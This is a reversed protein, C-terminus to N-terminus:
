ATNKNYNIKLIKKNAFEKVEDLTSVVNKIPLSDLVISRYKKTSSSNIRPDLITLIGTDTETRILRGAGQRLKIIMEPILLNMVPNTIVTSKYQIIPDPVPFPLRVIIVSSLDSGPTNFGEWFVGTGLLIGKSNIFRSKVENQSSGPSQKLISWPLKQMQFYQYIKNMDNKATFLVLTRGNTINALDCIKEATQKLFLDPDKEYDIMNDPIYLCANENYPFPSPKPVGFDGIFGVSKSVYAYQDELREAKQCLTASTLIIPALSKEFLLRHLREDINKPAYCIDTLKKTINNCIGWFIFPSINQKGLHKYAEKLTNLQNGLEEKSHSSRLSKGYTLAISIAEIHQLCKIVDLNKSMKIPFRDAHEMQKKQIQISQIDVLINEFLQESFTEIYEIANYHFEGLIKKANYLMNIIDKYNIKKTLANRMKTELNHAEDIVLLSYYKILRRDKEEVNLLHAILLDQNIIVVNASGRDSIEWRMKYFECEKYNPCKEYECEKPKVSILEWLDDEIDVGCKARDQFQLVKDWFEKPFRLLKQDFSNLQKSSNKILVQYRAENEFIRSICAYNNMGKGVIPNVLIGTIKSAQALDGLLQESLSISSTAIVIPRQNYRILFLGPILYALSKGIGVGAEIILNQGDRIAEAIDLAMNTQGDRSKMNSQTPIVENFTSDTSGVIHKDLSANRRQKILQYESSEFQYYQSM